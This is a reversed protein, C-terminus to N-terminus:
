LASDVSIHWVKFSFIHMQSNSKYPNGDWLRSFVIKQRFLAFFIETECDRFVCEGDWQNEINQPRNLCFEGRVLAFFCKRDSLRSSLCKRRVLWVAIWNKEIELLYKSKLFQISNIPHYEWFARYGWIRTLGPCDRNTEVSLITLSIFIIRKANSLGKIRGGGFHKENKWIM